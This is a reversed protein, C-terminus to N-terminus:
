LHKSNEKKAAPTSHHNLEFQSSGYTERGIQRGTAPDLRRIRLETRQAQVGRFKKEKDWTFWLRSAFLIDVM